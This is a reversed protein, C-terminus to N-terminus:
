QCKEVIGWVITKVAEEMRARAREALLTAEREADARKKETLRLASATIADLEGKYEAETEQEVKACHALGEERIKNRMETAKEEAVRCLVEAQTEAETIAALAKQTM